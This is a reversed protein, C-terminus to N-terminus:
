AEIPLASLDAQDAAVRLTLLVPGLHEAQSIDVLQLRVMELLALFTVIVHAKSLCQEFVEALFGKGRQDLWSMLSVVRETLSYVEREVRFIPEPEARKVLLGYWTELLGFVDVGPDITRDLVTSPQEPRTFVERGLLDAEFLAESAQKYREYDILRRALRERPDDEDEDPDIGTLRPLLERSKLQCLTAAMVLFEGAVNLDLEKMCELFKLYERTIHSIPLDRVDVGDRRILYLLLELPGDFAPTHVAYPDNKAAFV